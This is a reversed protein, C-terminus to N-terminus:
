DVHCPRAKRILRLNTAHVHQIRRVQPHDMRVKIVDAGHKSYGTVEGFRAGRMWLDCAPSLEVRDGITFDGRCEGYGLEDM